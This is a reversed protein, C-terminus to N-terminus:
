KDELNKSMSDYYVTPYPSFGQFMSITLIAVILMNASKYMNIPISVKFLSVIPIFM